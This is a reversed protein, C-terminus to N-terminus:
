IPKIRHSGFVEKIEIKFFLTLHNSSNFSIEFINYKEIRQFLSTSFDIHSLM